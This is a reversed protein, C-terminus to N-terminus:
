SPPAKLAELVMLSGERVLDNKKLFLEMEAIQIEKWKQQYAMVKSPEILQITKENLSSEVDFPAKTLQEKCQHNLLQYLCEQQKDATPKLKELVNDANGVEIRKKKKKKKSREKEGQKGEEQGDATAEVDGAGAKGHKKDGVKKGQKKKNAQDAAESGEAGDQKEVTAAKLKENAGTANGDKTQRMSGAKRKKGRESKRIELDDENEVVVTKSGVGGSGWIPKSLEHCKQLHPTQFRLVKGEKEQKVKAEYRDKAHRIKTKIQEVSVDVSIKPQIFEYFVESNPNEGRKVCDAMSRLLLIEDEETWVRRPDKESVAGANKKKKKPEEEVVQSKEVTTATSAPAPKPKAVPRKALISSANPKLKPPTFSASILNNIQKSSHNNTNDVEEQVEIEEVGGTSSSSATSPSKPPSQRLDM